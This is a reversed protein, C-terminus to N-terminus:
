GVNSFFDGIFILIYPGLSIQKSNKAPRTGLDTGSGTCTQNTYFGGASYRMSPGRFYFFYKYKNLIIKFTTTSVHVFM